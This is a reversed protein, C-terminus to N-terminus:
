YLNLRVNPTIRRLNQTKNYIFFVFSAVEVGSNTFGNHYLFQEAKLEETALLPVNYKHAIEKVMKFM